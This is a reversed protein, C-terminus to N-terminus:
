YIIQYSATDFLPITFSATDGYSVNTKNVNWFLELKVGAKTRCWSEADYSIGYGHVFENSCCHFCSLAGNGFKYFIHDNADKPYQNTVQLHFWGEPDISYSPKFINGAKIDSDDIDKEFPLYNAKQISVKFQDAKIKEIAFSFAGNEDTATTAIITQSPNFTGGQFLRAYLHIEAGAVFIQQYPDFIDGEIRIKQDEERCNVTLLFFTFLLIVPNLSKRIIQVM